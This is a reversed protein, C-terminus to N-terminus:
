QGSRITQLSVAELGALRIRDMATVVKGYPAGEDARIIVEEASTEEALKQIDASLSDWNTEQGNLDATGDKLLTLIIGESQIDESTESVPLNVDIYREQRFSTNLIFFLVLLFIIDILPTLHLGARSRQRRRSERARM